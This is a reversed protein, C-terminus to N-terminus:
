TKNGVNKKTGQVYYNQDVVGDRYGEEYSNAKIQNACAPCLDIYLEGDVMAGDLAQGCENCKVQIQIEM